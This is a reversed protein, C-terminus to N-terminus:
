DRWVVVVGASGAAVSPIAQDNVKDLDNVRVESSWTLGDDSSSSLYVDYNRSNINDNPENRDDAWVAHITGDAGVTVSPWQRADEGFSMGLEVDDQLPVAESWTEGNDNSRSFHVRYPTTSRQSDLWVANLSGDHSWALSPAIAVRNTATHNTIQSQQWTAGGNTSRRVVLNLRYFQDDAIVIWVQGAN